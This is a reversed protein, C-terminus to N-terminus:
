GNRQEHGGRKWHKRAAKPKTAVVGTNYSFKMPPAFYPLKRSTQGKCADIVGRLRNCYVCLPPVADRPSIAIDYDGCRDCHFKVWICETLPLNAV